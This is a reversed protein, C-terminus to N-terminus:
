TVLKANFEGPAPPQYSLPPPQMDELKDVALSSWPEDAALSSVPENAALSSALEDAALSFAPERAPLAESAGLNSPRPQM